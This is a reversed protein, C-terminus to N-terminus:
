RGKWVPARKQLFASAGEKADDLQLNLTLQSLLYNRAENFGMEEIAYSAERGMRIAAPSFSAIQSIMEEVKLDLNDREVAYNILGLQEADVATIQQATLLFELAKKPGAHRSLELLTLMPFVGVKLDPAGMRVNEVAVSLDCCLLLAFGIGLAHGNVRAIIPKRLARIDGFLEVLDKNASYQAMVGDIEVSRGLDGGACFVDDGSGSLVVIHVDQDHNARALNARLMNVVAATITNRREPRNITVRVVHEHKEYLVESM